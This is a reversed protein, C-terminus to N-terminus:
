ADVWLWTVPQGDHEPLAEGQAFRRRAALRDAVVWSGAQPCPQGSRAQLLAMDSGSGAASGAGLGAEAQPVSMSEMEEVGRKLDVFFDWSGLDRDGATFDSLYLDLYPQSHYRMEHLVTGDAGVLRFTSYGARTSGDREHAAGLEVTMGHRLDEYRQDGLYRFLPYEKEDPTRLLLVKATTWYMCYRHESEITYSGSVPYSHRWAIALEGPSIADDEDVYHWMGTAQDLEIVDDATHHRYIQM